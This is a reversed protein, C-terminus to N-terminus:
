VQVGGAHVDGGGAAVPARAPRPAGDARQRARQQAPVQRAGAAAERGRGRRGARRARGRARVLQLKNRRVDMQSLYRDIYAVSLFLTDSTLRYEQAVEVLWDVLISRMMPNIDTQVSEMYCTSPRRLTQARPPSAAPPPRSRLAGARPALPLKWQALGAGAGAGRRGRAARGQAAGRGAAPAWFHRECDRHM